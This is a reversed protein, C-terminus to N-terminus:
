VIPPRAFIFRSLQVKFDVNMGMSNMSLQNM